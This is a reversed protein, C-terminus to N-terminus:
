PTKKNFAFRGRDVKVFRSAEGKDRIERIMAAYLTAHPTKGSTAWGADIARQAIDKASMPEGFAQLASAALDLGSPKRDPKPKRAPKTAKPASDISDLNADISRIAEKRLAEGSKKAAPKKTSAKKATSKKTAPRKTTKKTSTKKARPM